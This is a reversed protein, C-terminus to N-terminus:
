HEKQSTEPVIIDEGVKSSDLAENQRIQDIVIKLERLKRPKM